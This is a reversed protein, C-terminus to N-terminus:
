NVDYLLNLDRANVISEYDGLADAFSFGSNSIMYFGSNAGTPDPYFLWTHGLPAFMFEAELRWRYGTATRSRLLAPTCKSLVVTGVARDFIVKSNVCGLYSIGDESDYIRNFLNSGARFADYPLEEWVYTFYQIPRIIRTGIPVPYGHPPTTGTQRWYKMSGGPLQYVEADGQSEKFWVYRVQEGLSDAYTDADDKDSPYPVSSYYLEVLADPYEVVGGTTSDTGAGNAGRITEAKTAVMEPFDPHRGYGAWTGPTETQDPLMRSLRLTGGDDWQSVDGCCLNVFNFRESWKVYFSKKMTNQGIERTETGHSQDRVGATRINMASIEAATFPRLQGSPEVPM